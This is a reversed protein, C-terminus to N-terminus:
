TEAPNPPEGLSPFNDDNCTQPDLAAAILKRALDRRVAGELFPLLRHLDAHLYEEYDADSLQGDAAVIPMVAVILSAVNWVRHGFDAYRREILREIGCTRVDEVTVVEGKPKFRQFRFSQRGWQDRVMDNVSALWADSPSPPTVTTIPQSM